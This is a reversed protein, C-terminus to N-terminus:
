RVRSRAHRCFTASSSSSRSSKMGQNHCSPHWSESRHMLFCQDVNRKRKNSETGQKLERETAPKKRYAVLERCMGPHNSYQLRSWDFLSHFGFVDLDGHQLFSTYIRLFNSGLPKYKSNPIPTCSFMCVAILSTGRCTERAPLLRSGNEGSTQRM